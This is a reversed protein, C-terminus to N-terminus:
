PFLRHPRSVGAPGKMVGLVALQSGTAGQAEGHNQPNRGGGWPGGHNQPNRGGGWPGGHNQPNRGGGRPSGWSDRPKERDALSGGVIKEIRGGGRPSGWSDTSEERRGKPKGM